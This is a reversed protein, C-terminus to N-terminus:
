RAFAAWREVIKGGAVRFIAIVREDVEQGSPPMGLMPGTHVGRLTWRVVVKDGEAIVDDVTFRLDSHAEHLTMNVWKVGEPGPPQGPLPNHDVFDPAIFRDALELDYGGFFEEFLRQALAKHEQVSM